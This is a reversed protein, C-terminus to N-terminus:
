DNRVYGHKPQKEKLARKVMVVLEDVVMQFLKEGLVPTAKTADRGVVGSKTYQDMRYEFFTEYDKEDVAAKMNVLDPRAALVCATEAINAHIYSPLVPCDEVLKAMTKPTTEWWNLVRVSLAPFDYRLNERASYIPGWNWMHGNLILLKRIRSRYLWEGIECIMRTMTEPRISLTGPFNGHSQSCGYILPPVVPVGTRASVRKAVEYCDISDVALPLHPGHQECAATPIIAMKMSKTLKDVDTWTMEEWLIPRGRKPIMKGIIM